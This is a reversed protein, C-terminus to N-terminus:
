HNKGRDKVEIDFNNTGCGMMLCKYDFLEEVGFFECRAVPEAEEVPRPFFGRSGEDYSISLRM